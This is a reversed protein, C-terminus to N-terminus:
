LEHNIEKEKRSLRYKLSKVWKHCLMFSNYVIKPLCLWLFGYIGDLIPMFIYEIISTKMSLHMPSKLHFFVSFLLSSIISFLTVNLFIGMKKEMSFHCKKRYLVSTTVIASLIYIGFVHSSSLELILASFFTIWLSRIFSCKSIIYIILPAFFMLKWTPFFLTGLLFLLYTYGFYLLAQKRTM